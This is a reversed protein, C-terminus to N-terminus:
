PCGGSNTPGSIASKTWTRPNSSVTRGGTRCFRARRTEADIAPELAEAAYPLAPLAFAATATQGSSPQTVSSQALAPGVALSSFSLAASLALTRIM